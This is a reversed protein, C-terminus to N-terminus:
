ANDIAAKFDDLSRIVVYKCGVSEAVKQWEIQAPTQRGKGDKVEICLPPLDKRLLVLDSVGAVMGMAKRRAGDIANLPNNNVEFLQGRTEPRENWLYKVCESQIYAETKEM